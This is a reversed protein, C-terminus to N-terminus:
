RTHGRRAGPPDATYLEASSLVSEFNNLQWNTDPVNGLGGAVVVQGNALRDMVFGARGVSMAGTASWSTTAPNFIYADAHVTDSADLGGALLVTGNAVLTAAADYRGGGPISGAPSWTGTAPDYIEATATPALAPVGLALFGTEAGGLAATGGGVVLVDGNGLVTASQYARATAMSGTPSWTGSASDYVEASSLAPGGAESVGGAVLVGGNPLLSATAGARATSMPATPSWTGTAPNYIEATATPVNDTSYGGAVLVDGNPLLAAVQSFRPTAMSGTASWANTSPDYVEAESLPANGEGGAVLVNGDPLATATADYRAVAMTGAPSWTGSSPDYIRAWSEPASFVGGAVLVDGGSLGASASGYLPTYMSGTPQFTSQPGGPTCTAIPCYSAAMPPVPQDAAPPLPQGNAATGADVYVEYADGDGVGPDSSTGGLTITATGNAVDTTGTAVTQFGTTNAALDNIQTTTSDNPFPSWTDVVTGTPEPPPAALRKVTYSVQSASWPVKVSLGVQEPPAPGNPCVGSWTMDWCYTEHRGVLVRIEQNASDLTAYASLHDPESSTTAIRQGVMEAYAQYVWWAARPQGQPTLLGDLQNTQCNGNAGQGPEFFCSHVGEIGADDMAGLVGAVFGPVSEQLTLYENAQLTVGDLAPDYTNIMARLWAAQAALDDPYYWGPVGGGSSTVSGLDHWTIASWQLNNQASYTLLQEFNSANASGFFPDFDGGSPGEVKANPDVSKIDDYTHQFLELWLDINEANVGAPENWVDWYDVPWETMHRQVDWKVFADWAPLDPYGTNGTMAQWDDSLVWIVKTGHERALQYDASAEGSPGYFFSTRWLQPRLAQSMAPNAADGHLFGSASWDVPGLVSTGDVALTPMSAAGASAPHATDLGSLVAAILVAVGLLAVCRARAM